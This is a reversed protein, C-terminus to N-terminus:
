RPDYFCLKRYAYCLGWFIYACFLTLFWDGIGFAMCLSAIACAITYLIGAIMCLGHIVYVILLYYDCAYVVYLTTPHIYLVTCVVVGTLLRRWIFM